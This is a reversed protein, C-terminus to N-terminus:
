DALAADGRPSPFDLFSANRRVTSSAAAVSKASRPKAAGVQLVNGIREPDATWREVVIELALLFERRM